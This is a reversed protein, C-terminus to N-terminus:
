DFYSLEDDTMRFRRETPAEVSNRWTFTRYARMKKLVNAMIRCALGLIEAGPQFDGPANAAPSNAMLCRRDNAGTM